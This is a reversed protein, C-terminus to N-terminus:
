YLPVFLCQTTRLILGWRTPHHSLLRDTQEDQGSEAMSAPLARKGARWASRVPGVSGLKGAGWAGVKMIPTSINKAANIIEKIRPVGACMCLCPQTPNPPHPSVPAYSFGESFAGGASTAAAM